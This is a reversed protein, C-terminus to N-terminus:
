RKENMGGLKKVKQDVENKIQLMNELCQFKIEELEIIREKNNESIKKDNMIEDKILKLRVKPSILNENMKLGGKMLEYELKESVNLHSINNCDLFVGNFLVVDDSLEIQNLNSGRFAEIKIENLNKMNPFEKLNYCGYFCRTGVKEFEGHIKEIRSCDFCYDPLEKISLSIEKLSTNCFCLPELKELNDLGNIQELNICNFFAAYGISKVKNLNVVKLNICNEFAERKIKTVSPLNVTQLNKFCKFFDNNVETIGEATIKKIYRADTILFKDFPNNCNLKKINDPIILEIDMYEDLDFTKKKFLNFYMKKSLEKLEKFDLQEDEITVEKKMRENTKLNVIEVFTKEKKM